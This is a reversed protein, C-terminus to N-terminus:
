FEDEALVVLHDEATLEYVPNKEPILKVGYNEELDGGHQHRKIGLCVEERNQAVAILDAYTATVPFEKFYMETTKLYIVSGDESFIQDYVRLIDPEESIQAFLMSMLQNSIIFDNVGARAVLSQNKTDMVETILKPRPQDAPLEKLLNRLMLLIILTQRREGM